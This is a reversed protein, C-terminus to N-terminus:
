EDDKKRNRFKSILYFVIKAVNSTTMYTNYISKGISQIINPITLQDALEDFQEKLDANEKEVQDKYTRILSNMEQKSEFPIKNTQMAEDRYLIEGFINRLPNFLIRNRLLFTLLGILIYFLAVWFFGLFTSDTRENYWYVFAFSLFILVFGSLAILIVFLVIFSFIESMKNTLILKNLKLQLDFYKQLSNFSNKLSNGLETNEM